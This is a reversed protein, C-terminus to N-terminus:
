GGPVAAFCEVVWERHEVFFHDIREGAM